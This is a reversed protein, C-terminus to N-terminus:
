SSQLKELSEVARFVTHGKRLHKRFYFLAEGEGRPADIALIETLDDFTFFDIHLFGGRDRLFDKARAILALNPMIVARRGSLDEKFLCEPGAGLPLEYCKM